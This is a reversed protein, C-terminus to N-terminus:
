VNSGQLLSWYMTKLCQAGTVWDWGAVDMCFSCWWAVTYLPSCTQIDLQIFWIRLDEQTIVVQLCTNWVGSTTPHFHSTLSSTMPLQFVHLFSLRLPIWKLVLYSIGKSINSFTKASWMGSINWISFNNFYKMDIHCVQHATSERSGNSPNEHFNLEPVGRV